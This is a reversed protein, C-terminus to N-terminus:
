RASHHVTRSRFINILSRGALAITTYVIIYRLIILTYIHSNESSVLQLKILLYIQHLIYKTTSVNESSEWFKQSM